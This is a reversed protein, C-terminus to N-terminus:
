RLVIQEQIPRGTQVDYEGTFSGGGRASISVIWVGPNIGQAFVADATFMAATGQMMSPDPQDVRVLSVSEGTSKYTLTVATFEQAQPAFLMLQTISEIRVSVEVPQGSVITTSFNNPEAILGQGSIQVHAGGAPLNSLTVSQQGQAIQASGLHNGHDPSAGDAALGFVGVNASGPGAFGGEIRIVLSGGPEVTLEGLDYDGEGAPIQLDRFLARFDPGGTNDFYSMNYAGPQVAGFTFTGDAGLQTQANLGSQEPQSSQLLLSTAGRTALGAIRGIVRRTAPAELEGLDLEGGGEPVVIGRALSISAGSAQLSLQYQGPAVAGFRFGGQADANAQYNAWNGTASPQTATLSVTVGRPAPPNLLRGRVSATAAFVFDQIVDGGAVDIPARNPSSYM